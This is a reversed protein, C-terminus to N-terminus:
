SKSPRYGDAEAAAASPYCRDASTRDYFRGGPVHFIGSSVKVKVPYGDPAIGDLGPTLWPEASLGPAVPGGSPSPVFADSEPEDAIGPSPVIRPEFPPWEPAAPPVSSRQDRIRKFAAAGVGVLLLLLVVRRLSPALASSM